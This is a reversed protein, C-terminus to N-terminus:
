PGSAWAWPANLMGMKDKVQGVKSQLNSVAAVLLYM